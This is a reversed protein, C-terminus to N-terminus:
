FWKNVWDEIEKSYEPPIYGGGKVYKALIEAETSMCWNSALCYNEKIDAFTYVIDSDYTGDFDLKGTYSNPTDCVISCNCDVLVKPCFRGRKDRNREYLINSKIRILDQLNKFGEFTKHGENYFRGGRGVHFHLYIESM